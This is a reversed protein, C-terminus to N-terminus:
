LTDTSESEISVFWDKAPCDLLWQIAGENVPMSRRQLLYEGRELREIDFEQGAEIGDQQRLEAPIVIQGKSSVTTKVHTLHRRVSRADLAAVSPKPAVHRGIQADSGLSRFTAHENETYEVRIRLRPTASYGNQSGACGPAAFAGSAVPM